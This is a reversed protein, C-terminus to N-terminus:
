SQQLLLTRPVVFNHMAHMPTHRPKTGIDWEAPATDHGFYNSCNNTGTVSFIFAKGSVLPGEAAREFSMAHRLLMIAARQLLLVISAAMTALHYM